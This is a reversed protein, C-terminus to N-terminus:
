PHSKKYNEFEKKLTNYKTQWRKEVEAIKKEWNEDIEVQRKKLNEIEKNMMEMRAETDEIMKDYISQVKDLIDAEDQKKAMKGKGFWGVLVAILGTILESIHQLLIDKM